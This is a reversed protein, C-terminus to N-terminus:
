VHNISLYTKGSIPPNPFTEFLIKQNCLLPEFNQSKNCIIKKLFLKNSILLFSDNYITTNNEFMKLM